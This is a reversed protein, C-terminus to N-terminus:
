ITSAIQHIIQSDKEFSLEEAALASNNKYMSLEKVDMSKLISSLEKASSSGLKPGLNYKDILNSIEESPSFLIALRAQVYDFFKNPLMYKHNLSSPNLLYIGVDYANLTRVLEHAPVPSKFKIRSNGKALTKLKDLYHSERSPILFLDLSFKNDLLDMTSILAEINREPTAIGSHVLKIVEPNISQVSLDQYHNSNRIVSPLISYRELYLNAISDNVTTVYNAEKLYKYCLHDMYPAVLTKWLFSSTNEQIAWEHLDVWLKAGSLIKVALPISRADNAVVLDFKSDSILRLAELEATATLETANFRRLALKLVGSITEPLSKLNEDIQLHSSSNEPQKGYGLTTVEGYEKLVSIQRLVRSDKQIDSFSICLIKKM